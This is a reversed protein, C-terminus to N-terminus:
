KNRKLVPADREFLSEYARSALQRIHREQLSTLTKYIETKEDVSAEFRPKIREGLYLSKMSTLILGSAYYEAQGKTMPNLSFILLKSLWINHGEQTNKLQSLYAGLEEMSHDIMDEDLDKFVTKQWAPTKWSTKDIQHYAEHYEISPLLVDDLKDLAPIEVTDAVINAAKKASKDKNGKGLLVSIADLGGGFVSNSSTADNRQLTQQMKSNSLRNKNKLLRKVAKKVDRLEAPDHYIKKLDKKYGKTISEEIDYYGQMWYPIVYSRGQFTLAPLISETTFRKIRDLLILSGIGTERYTLGLASDVAPVKDVRVSLFLPLETEQRATESQDTSNRSQKEVNILKDANTLKEAHSQTDAYYLQKRQKVKYTTMITTRCMEPNNKSLLSELKKLMMMEEVPADIFSSCPLSFSKPTLYFPIGQKDLAINVAKFGLLIDKISVSSDKLQDLQTEMLSRIDGKEPLGTLIKDRESDIEEDLKTLAAKSGKGGEYRLLLKRHILDSYYPLHNAFINELKRLQYWNNLSWAGALMVIILLPYFWSSKFVLATIPTKYQTPRDPKQKIFLRSRQALNQKLATRFVDEPVPFEKQQRFWDLTKQKIKLYRLALLYRVPYIYGQYFAPNEFADSQMARSDKPRKSLLSLIIQNLM